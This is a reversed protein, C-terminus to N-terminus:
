MRREEKQYYDAKKGAEGAMGEGIEKKLSKKEEAKDREHRGEESKRMM